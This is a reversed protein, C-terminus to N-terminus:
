DWGDDVNKLDKVEKVIDDCDSYLYQIWTCVELAKTFVWGEEILTEHSTRADEACLAKIEDGKVYIFVVSTEM